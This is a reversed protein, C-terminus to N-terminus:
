WIRVGQALEISALMDSSEPENGALGVDSGDAASRAYSLSFREFKPRTNCTAFSGHREDVM